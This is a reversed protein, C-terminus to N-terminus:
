AETTAEGAAEAKIRKVMEAAQEETLVHEEETAQKKIAEETSKSAKGVSGSVFGNGYSMRIDYGCSLGNYAKSMGRGADHRWETCFAPVVLGYFLKGITAKKLKPRLNNDVAIFVDGYLRAVTAGTNVDFLHDGTPSMQTNKGPKKVQGFTAWLTDDSIKDNFGYVSQTHNFLDVYGMIGSFIRSATLRVDDMSKCDALVNKETNVHKLTHLDATTEKGAQTVVLAVHVDQMKM